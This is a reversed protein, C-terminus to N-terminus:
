IMNGAYVSPLYHAKARYRTIVGLVAGAGRVGWWVENPDENDKWEGGYRGNEGVWVIRGDPLVLEVEMVNDMALGHKRGIFGFGGSIFQGSGVPFASTPVHFAGYKSSATAADLQKSHVGAGFTVVTYPPPDPNTNLTLRSSSSGAFSSPFSSSSSSSGGQFTTPIFPFASTTTPSPNVYTMQPQRQPIPPTGSSSSPSEFPVATPSVTLASGELSYNSLSLAPKGESSQLSTGPTSNSRGGGSSSSTGFGSGSRGSGSHTNSSSRSIGQNSGSSIPSPAANTEQITDLRKKGEPEDEDSSMSADEATRKVSLTSDSSAHSSVISPRQSPVPRPDMDEDM